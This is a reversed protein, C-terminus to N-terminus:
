RPPPHGPDPQKGPGDADTSSTRSHSPNPSSLPTYTYGSSPHVPDSVSRNSYNAPAYPISYMPTAYRLTSYSPAAKKRGGSSPVTPSTSSPIGADPYTTAQQGYTSQSPIPSSVSRSHTQAPAPYNSSGLYSASIYSPDTAFNRSDSMSGYGPTLLNNTHVFYLNYEKNRRGTRGHSDTYDKWHKLWTQKKVNNVEFQLAPGRPLNYIMYEANTLLRPRFTGKVM